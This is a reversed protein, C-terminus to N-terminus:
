KKLKFTCFLGLHDSILTSVYQPNTLDSGEKMVKIKDKGIVEMESPKWGVCGFYVRDLRSSGYTGGSSTSKGLGLWTDIMKAELLIKEEIKPEAFNFDGIVMKNQTTFKTLLHELQQRRVHGKDCDSELHVVVLELNLGPNGFDFGVQISKRPADEFPLDHRFLSVCPIRSLISIKYTSQQGIVPSILYHSQIYPHSKLCQQALETTEELCILDVTKKECIEVLADIREKRYKEKIWINFTIIKICKPPKASNPEVSVWAQSEQSWREFQIPASVAKGPTWKFEKLVSEREPPPGQERLTAKKQKM